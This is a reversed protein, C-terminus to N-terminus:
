GDNLLVSVTNSGGNATAVDRRGDGNVDGVAVAIPASGTAFVGSYLLTGDGNGLMLSVTGTRGTLTPRRYFPPVDRGARLGPAPATGPRRPAQKATLVAGAAEQRTGPSGAGRRRSPISCTTM